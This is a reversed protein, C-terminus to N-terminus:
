CATGHMFDLKIGFYYTHISTSLNPPQLTNACNTDEGDNSDDDCTVLQIPGTANPHFWLEGKHHNFGMSYMPLHPVIDNANVVRVVSRFGRNDVFRAFELNGIRPQGSTAIDVMGPDVLGKDSLHIAALVTVAAGLSHGTFTIKYTPNQTLLPQLAKITQPEISLYSNLFGSHIKMTKTTGTGRTSKFQVTKPLTSLDAIWNELVTSGRYAVIITKMDDNVAVYGQMGMESDGVIPTVNRTNRIAPDGCLPCSWASMKEPVCTAADYYKWITSLRDYEKTDVVTVSSSADVNSTWKSSSSSSSTPKQPKAPLALTLTPTLLQLIFTLLLITITTTTFPKGLPTSKM